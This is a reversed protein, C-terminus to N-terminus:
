RNIGFILDTNDASYCNLKRSFLYVDLAYTTRRGLDTADETERQYDVLTFLHYTLNAALQFLLDVDQLGIVVRIVFNYPLFLCQKFNGGGRNCFFGANFSEKPLVSRTCHDDSVIIGYKLGGSM